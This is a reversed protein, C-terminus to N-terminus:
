YPTPLVISLPITPFSNSGTRVKGSKTRKLAAKPQRDDNEFLYDPLATSNLLTHPALPSPFHYIASVFRKIHRVVIGMLVDDYHDWMKVMKTFETTPYSIDLKRPGM